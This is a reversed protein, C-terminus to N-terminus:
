KRKKHTKLPYLLNKYSVLDTYMSGLFLRFRIRVPIHNDDASIWFSLSDNDEFLDGKQVVPIFHYCDIYGFKTKIREIGMYRIHMDYYDGNFFVPMTIRQGKQLEIQSLRTRLFYTMSLMDHLGKPLVIVEGNERTLVTSDPRSVRDFLDVKYDKYDQEHVDRVARVPLHTDAMTYSHYVDHIPYIRGILGRSHGDGKLHYAAKGDILTDEVTFDAEAGRAGLYTLKFRLKEGAKFAPKGEAELPNNTNGRPKSGEKAKHNKGQLKASDAKPQSALIPDLQIPKVPLLAIDTPSNGKASATPGAIAGLALLM